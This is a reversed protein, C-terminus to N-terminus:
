AHFINSIPRSEWFAKFSQMFIHIQWTKMHWCTWISSFCKKMKSRRIRRLSKVELLRIRKLMSDWVLRNGLDKVRRTSLCVIVQDLMRELFLAQRVVQHGKSCTLHGRTATSCLVYMHKTLISDKFRWKIWCHLWRRKRPLHSIMSRTLTQFTTVSTQRWDVAKIAIIKFCKTHDKPKTTNSKQFISYYIILNLTRRFLYM